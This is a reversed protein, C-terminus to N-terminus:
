RRRATVVEHRGEGGESREWVVAIRIVVSERDKDAISELDLLEHSEPLLFDERRPMQVFNGASPERLVMENWASKSGMTDIIVAEDYYEMYVRLDNLGSPEDLIGLFQLSNYRLATNYKDQIDVPLSLPPAGNGSAHGHEDVQSARVYPLGFEDALADSGGSSLLDSVTYDIKLWGTAWLIGM